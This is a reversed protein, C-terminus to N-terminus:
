LEIGLTQVIAMAAAAPTDGVAVAVRKGAKCVKIMAAMPGVPECSCSYGAAELGRIVDVFESM